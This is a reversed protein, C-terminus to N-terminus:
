ETFILDYSTHAPKNANILSEIASRNAEKASASIRVSFTFNELNENQDEIQVAVGTYIELLRRLAWASGRRRYILHAEQLVTRQASESWTHDFRLDFWNALWPLFELPSTRYDLFLDFNDGTWEVPALISELLALFRPIFTEGNTRYIEPLYQLYHSDSLSQGPPPQYPEASGNVAPRGGPPGQAGGSSPVYSATKWDQLPSLHAPTASKPRPKPPPAAAMPKPEPMPESVPPPQAVATEIEGGEIEVFEPEVAPEPTADPLAATYDIKHYVMRFAGIEIVDGNKLPVATQAALMERNVQTGHTSGLDMIRCTDATTVLEAHKRSVLPHVLVLNNTEQRGIASVGEPLVYTEEIQPGSIELQHIVPENM